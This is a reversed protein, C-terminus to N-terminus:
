ICASATACATCPFLVVFWPDKYCIRFGEYSSAVSSVVVICQMANMTDPFCVQGLGAVKLYHETVVAVDCGSDAWCAELAKGTLGACGKLTQKVHAIDCM